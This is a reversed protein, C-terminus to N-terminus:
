LKHIDIELANDVIVDARALVDDDKITTRLAVCKMGAQKASEIGKPANEIVICHEPAINLKEAAVLYPQPSPKTETVDDSTIIVDFKELFANDVVHKLSSIVSGTVLGMVISKKELQNILAETEPIVAAKSLKRYVDRKQKTRRQIEDSSISHGKSHLINSLIEDANAGEEPAIDDAEIKIGLDLFTIQWAEVHRKLTDAIVGDFDFLVAKIM